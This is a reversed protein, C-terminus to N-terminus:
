SFGYIRLWTRMSVEGNILQSYKGSKMFKRMTFSSGKRSVDTSYIANIRTGDPLTGDIHSRADSVPRGIREGM